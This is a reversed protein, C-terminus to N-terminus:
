GPVYDIHPSRDSNGLGGEGAPPSEAIELLVAGSTAIGDSSNRGMLSSSIRFSRPASDSSNSSSRFRSSNEASPLPKDGLMTNALLPNNTTNANLNSQSNGRLLHRSYQQQHYHHRQQRESASSAADHEHINKKFAAPRFLVDSLTSRNPDTAPRLQQYSFVPACCPLSQAMYTASNSAGALCCEACFSCCCCAWGVYADWSCKPSKFVSRGARYEMEESQTYVDQYAAPIASVHRIVDSNLVIQRAGQQKGGSSSHPLGTATSLHRLIFDASPLVVDRDYDFFNHGKVFMDDSKQIFLESKLGCKARYEHMLRSHHCSIVRDNDAHIFLVPCKIIRADDESGILLKWTQWRDFLFCHVCGLIDSTVDRLSSYPSQLILAGPPTNQVQLESALVCAPGTGISRGILIVESSKIGFESTVFDYVSRATDNLTVENPHGDAVGFRPYEVLLYHANYARGEKEACLSIQGIDCANGHFNICFKTTKQSTNIYLLAPIM